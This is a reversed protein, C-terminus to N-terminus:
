DITKAQKADPTKQEATEALAKSAIVALLALLTGVGIRTLNSWDSVADFLTAKDLLTWAVFAAGPIAARIFDWRDWGHKALHPIAYLLVAALILGWWFRTGWTEDTITVQVPGSDGPDSNQSVAGFLAAHAALVEVPVLAAVTDLLKSVPKTATTDDQKPATVKLSGAAKTAERANTLSEYLLTSM